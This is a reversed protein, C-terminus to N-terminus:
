YQSCITMSVNSHFNLTSSYVDGHPLGLSTYADDQPNTSIVHIKPAKLSFQNHTVIRFVPHCIHPMGCDGPVQQKRVSVKM